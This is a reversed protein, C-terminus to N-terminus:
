KQLTQHNQVTAFFHCKGFASLTLSFARRKGESCLYHTGIKRCIGTLLFVQKNVAVWSVGSETKKSSKRKWKKMMERKRDGVCCLCFCFICMKEIVRKQRGSSGRYFFYKRVGYVSNTIQFIGGFCSLVQSFVDLLFDQVLNQRLRPGLKSEFFALDQVM